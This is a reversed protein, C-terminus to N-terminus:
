IRAELADGRSGSYTGLSVAPSSRLRPDGVTVGTTQRFWRAPGLYRPSGMSRNKLAVSLMTPFEGQTTTVAFPPPM